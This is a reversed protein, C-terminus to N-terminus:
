SATIVHWVYLKQSVKESTFCVTLSCSEHTYALMLAHVIARCCDEYVLSAYIMEVKSKFCFGGAAYGVHLM